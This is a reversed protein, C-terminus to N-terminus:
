YNIFANAVRTNREINNFFIKLHAKSKKSFGWEKPILEVINDFEMNVKTIGEIIEVKLSKVAKPPLYQIINKALVTALICYNREMTLMIDRVEQYNGIHAFAATHDIAYFGIKSFMPSMLFNPNEPKRDKNGVWLDFVGIKILEQPHYLKKFQVKTIGPLFDQLEVGNGINQSGFFITEEFHQQNYRNSIPIANEANFQEVLVFPIRILFVPPVNVGWCNLAYACFVENILETRPLNLTTTKAYYENGDRDIVLLPSSGVTGIEKM